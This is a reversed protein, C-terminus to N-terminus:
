RVKSLPTVKDDPVIQLQVPVGLSEIKKLQEVEEPSASINRFLPKRGPGAGMGGVNLFPMNVGAEVLKLAVAPVKMLVINKKGSDGPNKLRAIGDEVCLIEVSMDRPAAMTLIKCMFADKVVQDDIIIVHNANTVKAWATMVQGHILRDDIRYLVVEM